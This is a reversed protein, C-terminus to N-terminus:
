ITLIAEEQSFRVKPLSAYKDTSSRFGVALSVVSTLNKSKLDLIEDFKTPNFGEMPCTDINDIACVAMVEGLAIYVQNKLWAIIQEPTKSSLFGVLMDKFGVLEEPKINRQKATSAVFADINATSFNTPITLVFFESADSVQAQGFAAEKLALRKTPDTVRIFKWGQLGFSSPSLRFAEHVVELQDASLKKSSDFLKTAYRWNLQKITNNTQSM